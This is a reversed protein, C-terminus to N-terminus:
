ETWHEFLPGGKGFVPDASPLAVQKIRRLDEESPANRQLDWDEQGRPYAGVVLFDASSRLRKHGTGAPLIAVDGAALSVTEGQSGGFQVDAEGAVVVLVEHSTTHYHHYPYVGNRWVGSWANAKLMQEVDGASGTLVQQYLLLPWRPHNPVLDGAEFAIARVDASQPDALTM